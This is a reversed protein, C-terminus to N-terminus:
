TRREKKQYDVDHLQVHLPLLRTGHRRGAFSLMTSGYMDKIDDFYLDTKHVFTRSVVITSTVIEAFSFYYSTTCIGFYTDTVRVLATLVVTTSTVIGIGSYDIM